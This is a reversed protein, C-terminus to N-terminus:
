TLVVRVLTQQPSYDRTQIKKQGQHKERRLGLPNQTTLFSLFLFTSSKEHCFSLRNCLCGRGRSDRIVQNREILSRCVYIICPGDQQWTLEIRQVDRCCTLFDRKLKRVRLTKPQVLDHELHIQSRAKGGGTATIGKCGQLRLKSKYELLKRLAKCYQSLDFLIM